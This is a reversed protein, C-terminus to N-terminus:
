GLFKIIKSSAHLLNIKTLFNNICPPKHYQAEAVWCSFKFWQNQSDLESDSFLKFTNQIMDVSTQVKPNIYGKCISNKQKNTQREIWINCMYWVQKKQGSRFSKFYNWYFCQFKRCTRQLKPIMKWLLSLIKMAFTRERWWNLDKSSSYVM